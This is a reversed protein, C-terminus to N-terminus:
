VVSATVVLLSMIQIRVAPVIVSPGLERTGNSRAYPLLPLWSSVSSASGSRGPYM